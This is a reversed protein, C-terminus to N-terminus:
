VPLQHILWITLYALVAAWAVHVVLTGLAFAIIAVRRLLRRISGISSVAVPERAQQVGDLPPRDGLASQELTAVLGPEVGLGRQAASM